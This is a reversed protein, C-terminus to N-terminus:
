RSLEGTVWQLNVQAALLDRRGRALGARAKMLNLQADDVDLRLKVGLEFGKEALAVLREAEAVTGGLAEVIAAAERVADVGTRTELALADLFREEDLGLSRTESKIRAVAGKTRGGDFLPWRLALAANWTGGDGSKDDWDVARWGVGASLDLRPKDAAQAIRVLEASMARGKRLEALEPRRTVADRLVAAYDPPAAPAADLSGDVDVARDRLGLVFALRARSAAAQNATRIVEPRANQAAVSAALVDFDTATGALLRRRAEDLHRQRQQLNQAALAAYERALLADYFATAADRLATGRAAAMRDGATSRGIDALRVAAGIQGWTFLPQTVVLTTAYNDTRNFLGLDNQSGDESLSASVSLTLHPLAAAREEGYRAEVQTRYERAKQVDRSQDAAQALARELTLVLPGTERAAECRGASPATLLAVGVVLAALSKKMILVERNM